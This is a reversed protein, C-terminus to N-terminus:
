KLKSPFALEAVPDLRRERADFGSHAFVQLFEFSFDGSPRIYRKIWLTKSIPFEEAAACFNPMDVAAPHNVYRKGTRHAIREPCFTKRFLVAPNGIGAPDCKLHATFCVEAM